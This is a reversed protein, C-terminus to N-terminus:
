HTIEHEHFVLNFHFFCSFKNTWMLGTKCINGWNLTQSKYHVGAYTQICYILPKGWAFFLKWVFKFLRAVKIARRSVLSWSGDTTASLFLQVSGNVDNYEHLYLSYLPVLIDQMLSDTDLNNCIDRWNLPSALVLFTDNTCQHSYHEQRYSITLKETSAYFFNNNKQINNIIIIKSHRKLHYIYM